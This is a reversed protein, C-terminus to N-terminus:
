GDVTMEQALAFFADRLLLINMAALWANPPMKRPLGLREALAARREASGPYGTLKLAFLEAKTVPAGNEPPADEDLFTAGANELATLIAGRTMGEVGLLGSKSPATKRRETGPIEPIYAHKVAVGGLMGKLHGRILFGAGDSDTLLIVGREEALRRILALKEGDSFVGFGGTELITGRVAQSVTNKDYRGEVVIVEKVRRV